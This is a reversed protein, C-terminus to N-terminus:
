MGQGQGGRSIGHLSLTVWRDNVLDQAPDYSFRKCFGLEDEPELVRELPFLSKRRELLQVLCDLIYDVRYRRGQRWLLALILNVDDANDHWAQFSGVLVQLM